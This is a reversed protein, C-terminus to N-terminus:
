RNLITAAPNGTIHPDIREFRLVWRGATHELIEGSYALTIGDARRIADGVTPNSVGGVDPNSEDDHLSVEYMRRVGGMTETEVYDSIVGVIGVVPRPSGSAPLYTLPEGFDGCNLVEVFDARIDDRLTM